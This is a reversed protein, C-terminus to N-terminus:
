DVVVLKLNKKISQLLTVLGLVSPNDYIVDQLWYEDKGANRIFVKKGHKIEM